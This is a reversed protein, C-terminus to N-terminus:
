IRRALEEIKHRENGARVPWHRGGVNLVNEPALGGHADPWARYNYFICEGLM